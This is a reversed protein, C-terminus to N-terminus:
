SNREGGAQVGHAPAPGRLVDPSFAVTVGTPAGSASLTLAGNYGSRVINVTAKATGAQFLIVTTPVTSLTVTGSPGSADPGDTGGGGCAALAVFGALLVACCRSPTPQIRAIM